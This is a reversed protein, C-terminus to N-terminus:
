LDKDDILPAIERQIEAAHPAFQASYRRTFAELCELTNLHLQRQTKKLLDYFVKLFINLGELKIV